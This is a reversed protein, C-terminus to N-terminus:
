RIEIIEQCDICFAAYPIAKLRLLDIPKGCRDCTGYTGDEIKRLADNIQVLMDRFNEDLAYDKEREFTDTAADAPHNDYNALENGEESARATEANLDEQVHEREELLRKKYKELELKEIM